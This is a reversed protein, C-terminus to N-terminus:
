VAEAAALRIHTLIFVWAASFILVIGVLLFLHIADLEGVFPAKLIAVIDDFLKKM